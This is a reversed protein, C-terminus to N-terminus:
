LVRLRYGVGRVNEIIACKEIHRKINKIYTRFTALSPLSDSYLSNIIEDPSHLQDKHNCLYELIEFEKLPLNKFSNDCEVRLNTPHLLLNKSCQITKQKPLKAEIRILLEDLDFPKKIYDDCGVEFGKKMDQIQNLSTVFLTPTEDGSERLSKLLEFGNIGAVNVDFLYLKFSDEFTADVVEDSEQVWMVTYSAYELEEIVSQAILADDEMFLIDIM